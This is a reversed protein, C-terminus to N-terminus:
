VGTINHQLYHETEKVPWDTQKVLGRTDGPAM